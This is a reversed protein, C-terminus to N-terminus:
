CKYHEGIDLRTLGMLDPEHWSNTAPRRGNLWHTSHNDAFAIAEYTNLLVVTPQNIDYTATWTELPLKLEIGGLFSTQDASRLQTVFFVPGADTQVMELQTIDVSLGPAPPSNMLIMGGLLLILIIAAKKM